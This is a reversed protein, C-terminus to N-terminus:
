VIGIISRSLVRTTSDGRRVKRRKQAIQLWRRRREGRGGGGNERANEKKRSLRKKEVVKKKGFNKTHNLKPSTIFPLLLNIHIKFKPNLGWLPKQLVLARANKCVMIHWHINFWRPPSAKTALRNTNGCPVNGRLGSRRECWLNLRGSLLRSIALEIRALLM